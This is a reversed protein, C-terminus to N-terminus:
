NQLMRKANGRLVNVDSENSIKLLDDKSLTSLLVECIESINIPTMHIKQIDAPSEFMGGKMGEFHFTEYFKNTRITIDYIYRVWIRDDWYTKYRNSIRIGIKLVEYNKKLIKDEPLIKLAGIATLNHKQGGM